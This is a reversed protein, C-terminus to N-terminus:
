GRDLTTSKVNENESSGMDKSMGNGWNSLVIEPIVLGNWYSTIGLGHYAM